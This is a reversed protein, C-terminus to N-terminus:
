HGIVSLKPNNIVLRTSLRWKLKVYNTHKSFYPRYPFVVRDRPCHIADTFNTLLQQKLFNLIEEALISSTLLNIRPAHTTYIIQGTLVLMQPLLRICITSYSYFLVINNRRKVNRVVNTIILAELISTFSSFNKTNRLNKLYKARTRGTQKM